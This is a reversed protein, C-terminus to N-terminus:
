QDVCHGATVVWQDSILTGGCVINQGVRVAVIWPWEGISSISGGTIRKHIM